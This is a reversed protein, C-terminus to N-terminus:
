RPLNELVKLERIVGEDARFRVKSPAALQGITMAHGLRDVIKLQPDLTFTNGGKMTLEIQSSPTAGGNEGLGGIFSLTGETWEGAFAVSGLSAWLAVAMLILGLRYRTQQRIKM